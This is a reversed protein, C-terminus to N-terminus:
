KELQVTDRPTRHPNISFCFLSEDGFRDRQVYQLEPFFEFRRKELSYQKICHSTYSVHNSGVLSYQKICHFYMICSKFGSSQITQHWPLIHYMIQVQQGTNNSVTPLIHYMIQVQQVTNNSATCHSTNQVQQVTINSATPLMHYM